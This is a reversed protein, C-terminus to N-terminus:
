SYCLRGTVGGPINRRVAPRSGRSNPFFDARESGDVLPPLRHRCPGLVGCHALMDAQAYARRVPLAQNLQRLGLFERLAM